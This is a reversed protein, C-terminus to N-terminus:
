KLISRQVALTVQFRSGSPTPEYQIKGGHRRAIQQAIYLGLGFGSGPHIGGFRTFLTTRLTEPVGPGEDIITIRVTQPDQSALIGITGGAPSWKIANDILNLFLRRLGVPDGEFPLSPLTLTAKLSKGNMLPALERFIDSIIFDLHIPEVSAPHDDLEYSSLLLLRNSLDLISDNSQLTQELINSFEPSIEGWAGELALRMNMIGAILPTRIDHSVGYVLDRIVTNRRELMENYEKLHHLLAARHLIEELIPLIERLIALTAPEEPDLIFLHLHRGKELSHEPNPLSLRGAAGRSAHNHELLPSLSLQSIWVAPPHQGPLLSLGGPLPDGHHWFWLSTPAMHIPSEWRENGSTALIVGKADFLAVFDQSVRALISDPDTESSIEGFFTRMKQERTARNRESLLMGTELASRQVRITLYGVLLFSVASFFRNFVAIPNISGETRANIIEAVINAILGCIVLTVTANKRLTLGTLAIPIDLLISVVLSQPTLADISFIGLFLTGALILIPRQLTSSIVESTDPTKELPPRKSEAKM